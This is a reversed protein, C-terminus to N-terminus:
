DEISDVLVYCILGSAVGTLISEVLSLFLPEM